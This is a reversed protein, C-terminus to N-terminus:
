GRGTAQWGEAGLSELPQFRRKYDMKRSHPVWYGLYVHSLGQKRAYTIQQLVACTGPSRSASHPDFFTYVASLSQPLHDVVAVSVLRGHERLCWYRVTGWSCQLFGLFAQRDDPDMGGDAHRNRLYSRYLTYHEERLETELTLQLDANRVLCRRQSRDAAFHLAPVRVPICHQCDRCHPRYVHGGSRRFGLELLRQYRQPTLPWEPDVFASRAVRGPIYGCVHEASLYLRIPQLDSM